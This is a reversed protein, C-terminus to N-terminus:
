ADKKRKFAKKADKEDDYEETSTEQDVPEQNDYMVVTSEVRYRKPM